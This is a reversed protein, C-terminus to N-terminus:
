VKKLFEAKLLIGRGEFKCDVEHDGSVLRINSIRTGVKITDSSGKLKLDKVLAVSDGDQLLNGNADRIEGLLDVEDDLEWEHGCTICEVRGPEPVVVDTMTCIPCAPTTEM